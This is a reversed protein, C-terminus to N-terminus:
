GKRRAVDTVWRLGRTIRWSRSNKIASIDGKLRNIEDDRRSLEAVWMPLAEGNRALMATAAPYAFTHISIETFGADACFCWADSGFETHVVYDEPYLGTVPDISGHYSNKLGKRSRTMRGVVVPVTFCMAGSTKLVRRCEALARAPDPVHELTDSHIILDFSNDEYPMAHMDVEPYTALVHGPFMKLVNGILGAENIELVRLQSAQESVVFDKLLAQTGVAARIASALAISRLNSGCGNCTEGQQRNIYSAEEPSLEWDEILVPPLIDRPTFASGGCVCCRM